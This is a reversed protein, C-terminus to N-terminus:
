SCFLCSFLLDQNCNQRILQQSNFCLASHLSAVTTHLACLWGVIFCHKERAGTFLFLWARAARQLLWKLLWVLKRFSSSVWWCGWPLIVKLPEVHVAVALFPKQSWPVSLGLSKDPTTQWCGSQYQFTLTICCEPKLLELSSLKKINCLLFLLTKMKAFEALTAKTEM